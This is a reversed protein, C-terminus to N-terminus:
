SWVFGLRRKFVKKNNIATPFNPNVILVAFFFCSDIFLLCIYLIAAVNKWCVTAPYEDIQKSSFVSWVVCFVM